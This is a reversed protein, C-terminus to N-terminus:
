FTINLSGRGKEVCKYKLDHAQVCLSHPENTSPAAPSKMVSDDCCLFVSFAHVCIGTFVFVDRESGRDIICM